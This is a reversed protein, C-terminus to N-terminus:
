NSEEDTATPDRRQLTTRLWQENPGYLHIERQDGSTLEVIKVVPVLGQETNAFRLSEPVESIPRRHTVENTIGNVFEITGPHKPKRQSPM